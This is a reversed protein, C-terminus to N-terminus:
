SIEVPCHGELLEVERLGGNLVVNLLILVEAEAEAEGEVEAGAGAGTEAEAEPVVETGAHGTGFVEQLHVAVARGGHMQILLCGLLIVVILPHVGDTVVDETTRMDMHSKWVQRAGGKIM